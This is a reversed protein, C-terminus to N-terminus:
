FHEESSSHTCSALATSWIGGGQSLMQAMALLLIEDLLDQLRLINWKPSMHDAQPLSTHDVALSGWIDIIESGFNKSVNKTCPKALSKM